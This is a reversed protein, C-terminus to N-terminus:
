KTLGSSIKNIIDAEEMEDLSTGQLEVSFGPLKKKLADKSSAFLMKTKTPADEGVRSSSLVIACRFLVCWVIFALKSRQSGDKLTYDFDFVHYAAENQPIIEHFLNLYVFPSSSATSTLM